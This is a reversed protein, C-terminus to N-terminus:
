APGKKYKITSLDFPEFIEAINDIDNLSTQNYEVWAHSEFFGTVTRVGLRLRATVRRRRLLYWLTLSEPLCSFMYPMYIRNVRIVIQALDRSISTAPETPIPASDAATTLRLLGMYSRKLGFAKLCLAMLPLLLLTQAILTSESRKSLNKSVKM